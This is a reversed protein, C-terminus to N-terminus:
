ALVKSYDGSPIRRVETVDGNYVYTWCNVQKGSDLRAPVKKRVFLSKSAREASYDEYEDLKKLVMPDDPLEFVRGRVKQRASRSSKLGPYEGLDYLRGHVYAEGVPTLKKMLRKVAVPAKGNSLTGYTFLFQKM